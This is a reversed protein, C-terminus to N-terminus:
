PSLGPPWETGDAVFGIVNGCWDLAFWGEKRPGTTGAYTFEDPFADEHWPDVGREWAHVAGGMGGVPLQSQADVIM